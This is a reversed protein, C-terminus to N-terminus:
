AALSDSAAKDTIGVADELVQLSMPLTNGMVHNAWAQLVM